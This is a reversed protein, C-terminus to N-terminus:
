YELYGMDEAHEIYPCHGSEDIIGHDYADQLNMGGNVYEQLLAEEDCSRNLAEQAMEGKADIFGQQDYMQFEAQEITQVKVSSYDYLGENLEKLLSSLM